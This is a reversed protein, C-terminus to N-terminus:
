NSFGGALELLRENQGDAPRPARHPLRSDATTWYDGTMAQMQLWDVSAVRARLVATSGAGHSFASVRPSRATAGGLTFKQRLIERTCRM